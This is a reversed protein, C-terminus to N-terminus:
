ALILFFTGSLVPRHGGSEKGKRRVRKLFVVLCGVLVQVAGVAVRSFAYDVARLDVAARCVVGTMPRWRALSEMILGHEGSPIM